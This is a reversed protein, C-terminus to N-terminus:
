LQSRAGLSCYILGSVKAAHDVVAGSAIADQGTESTLRTHRVETTL